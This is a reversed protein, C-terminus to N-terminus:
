MFFFYEESIYCTVGGLCYGLRLIRDEPIYFQTTRQFDVSMKSSCKAEMKLTHEAQWGNERQNRERSIRRGKLHLSCIGGFRRIVKLPSCPTIDWFVYSRMVLATLVQVGIHSEQQESICGGSCQLKKDRKETKQAYSLHFVFNQIFFFTCIFLRM